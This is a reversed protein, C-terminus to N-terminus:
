QLLWDQYFVGFSFCARLFHDSKIRFETSQCITNLHSLTEQRTAFDNRDTSDVYNCLHSVATSLFALRSDEDLRMRLWESVMSHLSVVIQNGNRRSFQLLSLQQMQIVADEFKIRDWNGNTNFLSMPSATDDPDELTTTFMEGSIGVPHFFAFVTLIDRLGVARGDGIGLQSLSMEWTTLLSLSTEEEADSSTRRYQWFVPTEEMISRKRSEYEDVFERLRLQRQSIYAQAQDIALPLYGLLVLVEEAATLEETDATSHGLLQLCEEREMGDLEISLGLRKFSTHRSTVLISGHRSDPFFNQIDPFESPRDMNDFVMLWADSWSELVDRVAAVTANPNDLVRGPIMWNAITEMSRYVANRSSADVWFIARLKGSEKMHRCYNLALQTKGAGGRGVLIAVLTSSTITRCEFFAKLRTFLANRAVFHPAQLKPVNYFILLQNQRVLNSGSM